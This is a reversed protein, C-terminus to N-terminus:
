VETLLFELWGSNTLVRLCYTDDRKICEAKYRYHDETIFMIDAHDIKCEVVKGLYDELLVGEALTLM